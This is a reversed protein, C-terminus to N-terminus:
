RIANVGAMLGIKKIIEIRTIIIATTIGQQTESMRSGNKNRPLLM